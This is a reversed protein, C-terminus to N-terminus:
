ASGMLEIDKYVADEFPESAQEVFRLTNALTRANGVTIHTTHTSESVIHETAKGDIRNAIEAVAWQQGEIAAAVVRDAVLDLGNDYVNEAKRALARKIAAAWRKGEARNDNGVPAGRM